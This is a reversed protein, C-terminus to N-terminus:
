LTLGEELTGPWRRGGGASASRQCRSRPPAVAGEDGHKEIAEGADAGDDPEADVVVVFEGARARRAAAPGADTPCRDVPQHSSPLERLPMRERLSGDTPISRFDLAPDRALKSDSIGATRKTGSVAGRVVEDHRKTADIRV